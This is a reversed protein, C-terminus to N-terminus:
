TRRGGRERLAGGLVRYAAHEHDVEDDRRLSSIYPSIPLYLSIYPSIPLYAAHEHDVEDDRRLRRRM